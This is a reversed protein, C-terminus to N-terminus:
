LFSVGISVTPFGLRMTLATHENFYYRGGVFIAPQVGTESPTNQCQVNAPCDNFFGHYIFLGPEGFVSWNHAVYFNWQMAVPLLLFNASCSSGPIYCGSFHLLDAGFSIAITDNITKVFGRDLLPISVRVGFGFSDGPFLDDWGLNLHPEVEVAYNPHDGPNRITEDARAVSPALTGAALLFGVPVTRRFFDM